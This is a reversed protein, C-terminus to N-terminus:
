RREGSQSRKERMGGTVTLSFWGGRTERVCCFVLVLALVM